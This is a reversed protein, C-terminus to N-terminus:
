RAAMPHRPLRHDYRGTRAARRIAPDTGLARGFLEPAAFGPGTVAATLARWAVDSPVALRIRHEDIFPLETM